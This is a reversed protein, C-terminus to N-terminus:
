QPVGPMLSAGMIQVLKVPGSLTGSQDRSQTVQYFNNGIIALTVSQGSADYGNYFKPEVTKKGAAQAALKATDMAQAYSYDGKLQEKLADVQGQVLIEQLKFGSQAELEALKSALTIQTEAQKKQTETVAAAFGSDFAM